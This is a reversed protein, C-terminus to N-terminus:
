EILYYKHIMTSTLEGNNDEHIIRSMNVRFKRGGVLQCLKKIKAKSTEARSGQWRVDKIKQSIGEMGQGIIEGKQCNEEFDKVSWYFPSVYVLVKNDIGMERSCLLGYTKRFDDFYLNKDFDPDDLRPIIFETGHMLAPYDFEGFTPFGLSIFFMRLESYSKFREAKILKRGTESNLIDEIEKIKAFYLSEKLSPFIESIAEERMEKIKAELEIDNM